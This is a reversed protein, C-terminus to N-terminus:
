SMASRFSSPTKPVNRGGAVMRKDKGSEIKREVVYGTPSVNEEGAALPLRGSTVQPEM